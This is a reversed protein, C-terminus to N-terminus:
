DLYDGHPYAGKLFATIPSERNSSVSLVAFNRKAANSHLAAQLVTEALVACHLKEPPVALREVLAHHRFGAAEAVPQGLMTEALLSGCAIMWGCGYAKFRVASIIGSANIRLHLQLIEGGIPSDVRAAVVDPQQSDLCGVHHPHAFHERAAPSLEHM